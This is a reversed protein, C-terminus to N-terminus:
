RLDRLVSAYPADPEDTCARTLLQVNHGLTEITGQRFAKSSFSVSMVVGDSREYFYAAFNFPQSLRVPLRRITLASHGTSRESVSGGSGVVPLWNFFVDTALSPLVTALQGFDSHDRASSFEADVRRCLDLYSEGDSLNVRLYLPNALYGVVNKLEPRHRGHSVLAVVLDTQRCLRSMAMAYIPLLALSRRIRGREGIARLKDSATQGLPFYLLQETYPTAEAIEYDLPIKAPPAGSFRGRWYPGNRRLWDDYSQQQWVSYDAVQIPLDPLSPSRGQALSHYLEWLERNLIACSQNDSVIHHVLLVLAHDEDSFRWLKAAFLPGDRVDVTENMFSQALRTAEIEDPIVGDLDVVELDFRGSAEVQQVITEGVAVFRTRLAEHREILARLCVRLLEEDFPRSIRLAAPCMRRSPYGHELENAFFRRQEVM